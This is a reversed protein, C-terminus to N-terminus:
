AVFSDAEFERMVSILYEVEQQKIANYLSVRMGGLSRHGAIGYVGRKDAFDLFATTIEVSPLHFVVNMMSRNKAEVKNSFM